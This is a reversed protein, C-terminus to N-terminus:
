HSRKLKEILNLNKIAFFVKESDNVFKTNFIKRKAIFFSNKNCELSTFELM